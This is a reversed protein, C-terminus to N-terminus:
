RDREASPLQVQQLLSAIERGRGVTVAAESLVDAVQGRLWLGYGVLAIAGGAALVGFIVIWIM